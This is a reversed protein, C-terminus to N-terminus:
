AAPPMATVAPLEEGRRTDDALKTVASLKVGYWLMVIAGWITIPIFWSLHVLTAYALATPAAIGHVMMAQSAFYHYPGIGGPSSPLLLGFGTVCMTIVAYQVTMPIGFIPLIAVYIGAEFAWVVLSLLVLLLADVPDRLCAGADTVHTALKVFRSQWNIGLPSTLKSTLSIILKPWLAGVAMVITALGFVVLAVYVLERMWGAVSVTLSAIVLFLLMALGDLVREIFTVGLSQAIPMKAREALMGARVFEGLRAPLVNNAGYGVVVINTATLLGLRTHRRVLIKCRIGRVVHSVLYSAIGIPLWPLLQADAFARKVASLDLGRMALYVFVASAALGVCIVTWRNKLM